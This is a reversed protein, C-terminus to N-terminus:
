MRYIVDKINYVSTLDSFAPLIADDFSSLSTRAALFDDWLEKDGLAAVCGNIATAGGLINSKFFPINRGHNTNFECPIVYKPDGFMLMSTLPARAYFPVKRNQASDYIDIEHTSPARSAVGMAGAGSGIIAIKSM